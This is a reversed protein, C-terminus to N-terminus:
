EPAESLAAIEHQSIEGLCTKLYRDGNFDLLEAYPVLEIDIDTVARIIFRSDTVVPSLGTSGFVMPATFVAPQRANDDSYIDLTGKHLLLSFEGSLDALSLVGDKKLSFCRNDKTLANIIYRSQLAISTSGTM